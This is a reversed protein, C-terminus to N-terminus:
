ALSIAARLDRDLIASLRAVEAELVSRPPRGAERFWAICARDEELTWTGRVIGGALV